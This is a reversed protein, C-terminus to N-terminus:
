KGKELEPDKDNQPTVEPQKGEEEDILEEIEPIGGDDGPSPLPLVPTGFLVATCALGAAAFTLLHQLVKKKM